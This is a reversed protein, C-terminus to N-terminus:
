EGMFDELGQLLEIFRDGRPTIRGESVFGKDIMKDMYKHYQKYNTRAVGLRVRKPQVDLVLFIDKMIDWSCRTM